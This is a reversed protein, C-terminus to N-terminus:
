GESSFEEEETEDAASSELHDTVVELVDRFEDAEVDYRTRVAAAWASRQHQRLATAMCRLAQCRGAGAAAHLQTLSTAREVEEGEARESGIVGDKSVDPAFVQPFPVPLLMRSPH